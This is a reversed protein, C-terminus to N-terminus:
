CHRTYLCLSRLRAAVNCSLLPSAEFGWCRRAYNSKSLNGSPALLHRLFSVSTPPVTTSSKSLSSTSARESPIKLPSAQRDETFSDLHPFLGNEVMKGNRNKPGSGGFWARVDGCFPGMLAGFPEDTWWDKFDGRSKWVRWRDRLGVPGITSPAIVTYCGHRLSSSPNRSWCSMYAIMTCELCSDTCV